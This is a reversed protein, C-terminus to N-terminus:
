ILLSHRKLAVHCHDKHIRTLESSPNEIRTGDKIFVRILYGCFLESIPGNPMLAVFELKRAIGVVDSDMSGYDRGYGFYHGSIKLKGDGIKVTHRGGGTQCLRPPGIKLGRKTLYRDISEWNSLM